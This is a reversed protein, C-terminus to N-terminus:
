DERYPVDWAVKEGNRELWFGDTGGYTNALRLLQEKDYAAALCSETGGDCDDGFMLFYWNDTNFPISM